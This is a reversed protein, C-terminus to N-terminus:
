RPLRGAANDRFVESDRIYRRAVVPMVDTNGALMPMPILTEGLSQAWQDYYPEM